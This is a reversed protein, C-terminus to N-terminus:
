RDRKAANQAPSGDPAILVRYGRWRALVALAAFLGRQLWVPPGALYLHDRYTNLVLTILLLKPKGTASFWDPREVTMRAFNRFFNMQRQPPDFIVTAVTEGAAANMFCHPTGRPVTIRGGAEVLAERGGLTVKLRGKRVVFTEDAAPHVHLLADGGGSGGEELMVDFADGRPPFVFTERNFANLIVESGVARLQAPTIIEHGM